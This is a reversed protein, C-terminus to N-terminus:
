RFEEKLTIDCDINSFFNERVEYDVVMVVEGGERSILVDSPKIVAVKNILFHKGRDAQQEDPSQVGARPESLVREMLRQITNYEMFPPVLKMAATAFVVVVIIAVMWGAVSMGQVARVSAINKM